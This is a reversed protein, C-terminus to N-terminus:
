LGSTPPGIRSSVLSDHSGNAASSSPATAAAGGAGADVGGAGGGINASDGASLVNDFFLM